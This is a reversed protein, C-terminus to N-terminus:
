IVFHQHLRKQGSFCGIKSSESYKELKGETYTSQSDVIHHVQVKSTYIVDCEVGKVDTVTTRHDHVILFELVPHIAVAHLNTPSEQGLPNKNRNIFFLIM